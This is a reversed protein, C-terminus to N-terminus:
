KKGSARTFQEIQQLGAKLEAIWTETDEINIDEVHAVFAKLEELISHARDGPLIKGGCKALELEVDLAFTRILKGLKLEILRFRAFSSSYGFVQDVLLCAGALLFLVLGTGSPTISGEYTLLGTSL